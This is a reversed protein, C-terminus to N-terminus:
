RCHVSDRGILVDWRFDGFEPLQVLDTLSWGDVIFFSRGQVLKVLAALADVAAIRDGQWPRLGWRIQPIASAM